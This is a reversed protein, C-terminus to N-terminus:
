IIWITYRKQLTYGDTSQLVGRSKQIEREATHLEDDKALIWWTPFWAM